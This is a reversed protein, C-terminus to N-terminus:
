SDELEIGQEIGELESGGFGSGGLESGEGPPLEPMEEASREVPSQPIPAFQPENRNGKPGWDELDAGAPLPIELEGSSEPTASDVTDGAPAEEQLSEPSQPTNEQPEITRPAADLPQPAVFSSNPDTPPDVITPGGKLELVASSKMPREFSASAQELRRLITSAERGTAVAPRADRVQVPVLEVKMQQNRLSVKLIATDQDQPSAQEADEATPRQFVFDGLSYAIPRGKYIEAGQLTQPHYGVVLDAGQDIALRALNTQWDAPVQPIDTQWRYNVVIWDVEDRLARIDETIGMLGQANIGPREGHAASDGGQAYSLYAIRKGKVDIVEPRRAELENRGAGLRYFGGRDLTELTESLGEGGFEMTSENTLNVIDVGGAKLVDVADLRSRQHFEEQLSTAASALPSGLNVMALDAQQYDKLGAFLQEAEGAEDYSVNDLSIDGGFLLTVESPNPSAVAPHQIVAVPEVAADVIPSRVQSAAGATAVVGVAQPGEYSVPAASAGSAATGSERLAAQDAGPRGAALGDDVQEVEPRSSSFIPLVPTSGALIVEVLCGFVFAAVASGTLVLARLTKLHSNASAKTKGSPGTQRAAPPQTQLRPPLPSTERIAATAGAQRRQRLAPTVVRIRQQWLVRRRGAPRAIIHIGEILPSNLQWVRHCLFRTLRERLPTQEFEVLLRLCGPQDAPQVQVFIGQPALPENLWFAIARFHGAAAMEQISPPSPPAPYIPASYAANVM